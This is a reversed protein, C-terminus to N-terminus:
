ISKSKSTKFNKNQWCNNFMYELTPFNQHNHITRFTMAITHSNTLTQSLKSPKGWHHGTIRLNYLLLNWTVCNVPVTANSQSIQPILNILNVDHIKFKHYWLMCATPLQSISNIFNSHHNQKVLLWAKLENQLCTHFWALRLLIPEAWRMEIYIRTPDCVMMAFSALTWPKSYRTPAQKVALSATTKVSSKSSTSSFPPSANWSSVRFTRWAKASKRSTCSLRFSAFFSTEAIKFTTVPDSHDKVLIYLYLMSNKITFRVSKTAHCPVAFLPAHRRSNCTKQQRSSEFQLKETASAHIKRIYIYTLWINIHKYKILNRFTKLTVHTELDSKIPQLTKLLEQNEQLMRM